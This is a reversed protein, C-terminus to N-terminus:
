SFKGRAVSSPIGKYFRAEQLETKASAMQLLCGSDVEHLWRGSGVDGSLITAYSLQLGWATITTFYSCVLVRIWDSNERMAVINSNSPLPPPGGLTYRSCM